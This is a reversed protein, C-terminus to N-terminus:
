ANAGGAESPVQAPRWMPSAFPRERKVTVRNEAAKGNVEGNVEGNVVENGELKTQVAQEGEDAEKRAEERRWQMETNQLEYGCRRYLSIALPAADLYCALGLGDALVASGHRVIAEAYGKGRHTPHTHMM